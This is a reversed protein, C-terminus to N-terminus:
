VEFMFNVQMGQQGAINYEADLHKMFHHVLTLGLHSDDMEEDVNFGVGNDSISGVVKSQDNQVLKIDVQGNKEGDFGHKIANSVLEHVLLACQTAKYVPLEIPDCSVNFTIGKEELMSEHLKRMRKILDLLLQDIQILDDSKDM